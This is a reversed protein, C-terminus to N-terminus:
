VYNEVVEETAAISQQVAADSCSEKLFSLFRRSYEGKSGPEVACRIAWCATRAIDPDSFDWEGILNTLEKAVEDGKGIFGRIFVGRLNQPARLFTRLSDILM